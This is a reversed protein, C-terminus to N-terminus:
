DTAKEFFNPKNAIKRLEALYSGKIGQYPISILEIDINKNNRVHEIYKLINEDKSIDCSVIFLLKYYKSSKGNLYVFCEGIFKKIVDTNIYELTKHNKCQILLTKDNNKKAILDIGADFKLLYRTEVEYDLGKYYDAIQMEYSFGNIENENLNIENSLAKSQKISEFKKYRKYIVIALGVYYIVLISITFAM